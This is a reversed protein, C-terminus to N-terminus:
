RSPLHQEEAPALACFALLPSSSRTSIASRGKSETHLVPEHLGLVDVRRGCREHQPQIAPRAARGHLAEQRLEPREPNVVSVRRRQLAVRVRPCAGGVDDEQLRRDADSEAVGLVALAESLADMYQMCIM